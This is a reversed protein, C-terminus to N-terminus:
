ALRWYSSLSNLEKLKQRRENSLDVMWTDWAKELQLRLLRLNPRGQRGGDYRQVQVPRPLINQWTAFDKLHRGSEEAERDAEGMHWSLPWECIIDVCPSGYLVLLLPTQISKMSHIDSFASLPSPIFFIGFKKVMIWSNGRLWSRGETVRFNFKPCFPANRGETRQSDAKRRWCHKQSQRSPDSARHGVVM